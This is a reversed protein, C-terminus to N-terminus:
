GHEFRGTIKSLKIRYVIPDIATDIDSESEAIGHWPHNNPQSVFPMVRHILLQRAMQKEVPDTIEEFTGWAIVCKWQFISDLEEVEFCVKPNKQMMDIKKGPASHAYIYGDKYVYNLPVLYTEGDYHCGLRGIIQQRLVSEIQKENLEGLM